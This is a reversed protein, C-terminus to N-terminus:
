IRGSRMDEHAQAREREVGTWFELQVAEEETSTLADFFASPITGKGFALVIGQYFAATQRM